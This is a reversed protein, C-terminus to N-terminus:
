AGLIQIGIPHFLSIQILKFLIVDQDHALIKEALLNNQNNYIISVVLTQSPMEEDLLGDFFWLDEEEM